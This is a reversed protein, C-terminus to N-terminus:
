FTFDTFVERDGRMLQSDCFDSFRTISYRKNARDYEGRIWVQNEAPDSIPKKTFFDGQKLDKLTM